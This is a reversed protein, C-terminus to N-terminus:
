FTDACGQYFRVENTEDSGAFSKHKVGSYTIMTPYKKTWDVETAMSPLTTAMTSEIREETKTIDKTIVKLEM